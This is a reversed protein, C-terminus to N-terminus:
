RGSCLNRVKAMNNNNNNNNNMTLSHVNRHQPPSETACNEYLTELFDKTESTSIPSVCVYARVCV